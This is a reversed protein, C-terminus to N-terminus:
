PTLKINEIATLLIPCAGLHKGSLLALLCLRGRRVVHEDLGVRTGADFGRQFMRTQGALVPRVEVM